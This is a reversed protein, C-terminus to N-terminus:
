NNYLKMNFNFFYSFYSSFHISNVPFIWKHIFVIMFSTSYLIIWCNNNKQANECYFWTGLGQFCLKMSIIGSITWISSKDILESASSHKYFLTSSISDFKWKELTKSSIWSIEDNEKLIFLNWWKLSNTFSNTHNMMWCQFWAMQNLSDLFQLLNTLVM